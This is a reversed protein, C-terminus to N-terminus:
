ANKIEQELEVLEQQELRSFEASIEKWENRIRQTEALAVNFPEVYDKVWNEPRLSGELVEDMEARRIDKNKRAAELEEYKEGAKRRLELIKAHILGLRETAM